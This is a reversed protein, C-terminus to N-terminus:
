YLHLITLVLCVLFSALLLTRYVNFKLLIKIPSDMCFHIAPILDLLSSPMFLVFLLQKMWTAAFKHYKGLLWSLEKAFM